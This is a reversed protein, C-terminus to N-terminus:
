ADHTVSAGACIDFAELMLRACACSYRRIRADTTRELAYRKRARADTNVYDDFMTAHRAARRLVCMWLLSLSRRRAPPTPTLRHRRACRPASKKDKVIKAGIPM